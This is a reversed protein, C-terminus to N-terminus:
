ASKLMTEEAHQSDMGEVARKKQCKRHRWNEGHQYWIIQTNLVGKVKGTGIM